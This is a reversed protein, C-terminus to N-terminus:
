GNDEDGKCRPCGDCGGLCQIFVDYICSYMM